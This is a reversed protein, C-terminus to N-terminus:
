ASGDTRVDLVLRAPNSLRFVRFPARSDLGVFATFQGEFTAQLDVERVVATDKPFLDTSAEEQGTDFPYGVGTVVVRLVAKGAVEVRRGSGDQTAEDVYEVRWGPAGAERGALELVVRDYGDQRAARASVVTLPGGTPQETDPTTDAAFPPLADASSSPSAQPTPTPPVGPASTTPVASPTATSATPSTAPDDTCAALLGAALLLPLLRKM